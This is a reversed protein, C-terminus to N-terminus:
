ERAFHGLNYKKVKNNLKNYAWGIAEASKSRNGKFIQLVREIHEKEVHEINLPKEVNSQNIEIPLDTKEVQEENFVYLKTIINEM